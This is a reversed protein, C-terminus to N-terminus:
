RHLVSGPDPAAFRSTAATKVKAPIARLVHQGLASGKPVTITDALTGTSSTRDTPMRATSGDWTLQVSTRSPLGSGRVALQGGPIPVGSVSLQATAADADILPSMCSPFWSPPDARHCGIESDDSNGDPHPHPASGNALWKTGDWFM